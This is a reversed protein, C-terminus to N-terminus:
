ITRSPRVFVLIVDLLDRWERERDDDKIATIELYYEWASKQQNGSDPFRDSQNATAWAFKSLPPEAIPFHSNALCTPTYLITSVPYTTRRRLGIECRLCSRCQQLSLRSPSHSSCTALPPLPGLALTLAELIGDVSGIPPRLLALGGGGIGATTDLPM